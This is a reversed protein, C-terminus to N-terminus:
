NVAARFIKSTDPNLCTLYWIALEAAENLAPDPQNVTRLVAQIVKEQPFLRLYNLSAIREEPSGSQLANILINIAPDGIQIGLGQRGAFAILWATESAATPKEPIVRYSHKFRELAQNAASRVVWQNDKIAIQELLDKSWPEAIRALGYIASRRTLLNDSQTAKQLIERGYTPNVSLLEAAVQSLIVDNSAICEEVIRMASRDPINGLAWCANHRVKEDPNSLLATLDHITSPEQLAGLMLCGIQCLEAKPSTLLKQFYQIVSPARTIALASAFSLRVGFLNREDMLGEVMRRMVKARIPHSAPLGKLTRSFWLLNRYLPPEESFCNPLITLSNPKQAFCFGLALIKADWSDPDTVWGNMHDASYIAACYGLIVPHCFRYVRGPHEVLIGTLAMSQLLQENSSPNGPRVKHDKSKNPVPTHAPDVPQIQGIANRVILADLEFQDFCAKKEDIMEVALSSIPTMLKPDRVMRNVFDRIAADPTLQNAEGSYVSWLLLTWELPSLNLPDPDIWSNVILPDPQVVREKKQIEPALKETWIKGWGRIFAQREARNWTALTVPQYGLQLIGGVTLPTSTTIMRLNPLNGHLKQIISLAEKHTQSPLEDLGDLLVIATGEVLLKRIMASSQGQYWLPLRASFFGIILDVPNLQGQLDTNTQPLFDLIHLYLPQLAALDGLSPDKRAFLSALHALAVTKGSGPAGIMVINAGHQIADPLTIFEVPYQSPIEPWDPLDPFLRSLKFDLHTPQSPDQNAPHFLFKPHILIEDLSFLQASLHAHQARNLAEQRIAADIGSFSRDKLKLLYRNIVPQIRPLWGRFQFYLFWILLGAILGLFISFGDFKFNVGDLM